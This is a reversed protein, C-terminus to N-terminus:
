LDSFQIVHDFLKETVAHPTHSVMILTLDPTTLLDRELQVATAEDVASTGEDLLIIGVHRLLGRALALRQLQGGSLNSGNPGVNLDLFDAAATKDTILRTALLVETLQSDSYTATLCLNDRVTTALAQPRQDLYLIQQTVQDLAYYRLSQGNLQIEGQYGRLYGTLLKLFTSKGSGSEGLILYKQGREFSYTVPGFVVQGPHYAFSVQQVSLQSASTVETVSAAVPLTAQKERETAYKQFIPEVGRVMGLNSSMNGLSNFINGSLGGAAALTGVSVLGKLALFGSLGILVVQSSVNGLFGTVGVQSQVRARNVYATKLDQSATLVGKKLRALSQFAYLLNFVGLVDQTRDVFRENEHTLQQNVRNIARNFLRPLSVILGALIVAVLGLSWHYMALMGLSLIAGIVGQIILFLPRFGQDNIIQLDNNLWSEYVGTSRQNYDEYDKHILLDALDSRISTDIDQIVAEQYIIGVYNLGAVVVWNLLLWVVKILFLRLDRKVLANLIDANLVAGYVVLIQYFMLLLSLKMVEARHRRLYPRM